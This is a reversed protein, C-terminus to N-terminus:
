SFPDALDEGGLERGREASATRRAPQSSGVRWRAPVAFGVTFRRSARWCSACLLRGEPWRGDVHAAVREAIEIESAATLPAAWTRGCLTRRLATAREVTELLSRPFSRQPDYDRHLQEDSVYVATAAATDVTAAVLHVARTGAVAVLRAVRGTSPLHPSATMDKFYRVTAAEGSPHSRRRVRGESRRRLM